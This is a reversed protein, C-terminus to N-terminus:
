GVIITKHTHSNTRLFLSLSLIATQKNTQQYTSISTIYNPNQGDFNNKCYSDFTRLLAWYLLYISLLTPHAWRQPITDRFKVEWQVIGKGRKSAHPTRGKQKDVIARLASLCTKPIVTM